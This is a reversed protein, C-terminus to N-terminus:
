KKLADQNAKWLDWSDQIRRVYGEQIEGFAIEELTIESSLFDKM